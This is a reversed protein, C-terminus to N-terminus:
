HIGFPRHSVWGESSSSWSPWVSEYSGNNVVSDVPKARHFGSASWSTRLRSGRRLAEVHKGGSCRPFAGRGVGSVYVLLKLGVIFIM